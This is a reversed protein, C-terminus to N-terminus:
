ILNDRKIKESLAIRIYQSRSAYYPNTSVHKDIIEIISPNVGRIFLIATKTKKNKETM